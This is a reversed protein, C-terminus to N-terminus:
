KAPYVSGMMQYAISGPDVPVPQVQGMATADTVQPRASIKVTQVTAVFIEKMTVTAKLGYRTTNDDPASITEVLMNSYLNLRTLVQFPIRSQQLQVLLRYATVSRSWGGGFQGSVIDQAVDTMGVDMVLQAPNVYAHDSIAAGTEVPHDTITLSTTHEAKLFADFFYGGINTKVYVLQSQDAM